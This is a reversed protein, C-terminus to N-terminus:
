PALGLGAEIGLAKHQLAAYLREATRLNRRRLGILRKEEDGLAAKDLNLLRAGHSRFFQRAEDRPLGGVRNRPLSHAEDIARYDDPDRVRALLLVAAAHEALAADLSSAMAKSNARHIRDDELVKRETELIAGIDGSRGVSELAEELRTRIAMLKAAPRGSRQKSELERQEV